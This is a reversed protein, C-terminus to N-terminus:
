GRRLPSASRRTVPERRHDIRRRSRFHNRGRRSHQCLWTRASRSQLKCLIGEEIAAYTSVLSLCKQKEDVVAESRPGIPCSIWLTAKCNPPEKQPPSTGRRGTATQWSPRTRKRGYRVNLEPWSATSNSAFLTARPM